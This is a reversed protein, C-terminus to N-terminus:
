HASALQITAPTHLVGAVKQSLSHLAIGDVVEMRSDGKADFRTVLLKSDETQIAFNEMKGDATIVTGRFEPSDARLSLTLKQELRGQIYYETVMAKIEQNQHFTQVVKIDGSEVVKQHDAQTLMPNNGTWFEISNIVIADALLAVGYVPIINLGLFVLENVFKNGTVKQNWDSLKNFAAFRGLCGTGILTFILAIVTITAGLNRKRM